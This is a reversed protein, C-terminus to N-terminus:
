WMSNANNEGFCVLLVPLTGCFAAASVISLQPHKTNNPAYNTSVRWDEAWETALHHTHADFCHVFLCDTCKLNWAWIKILAIM